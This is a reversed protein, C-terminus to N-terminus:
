LKVGLKYLKVLPLGKELEVKDLKEILTLTKKKNIKFAFFDFEGTLEIARLIPRDIGELHAYDKWERSNFMVWDNCDPLIEFVTFLDDIQLYCETLKSYQVAPKKSINDGISDAVEKWIGWKSENFGKLEAYPTKSQWDVLRGYKNFYTVSDREFVNNFVLM